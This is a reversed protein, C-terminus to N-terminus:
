PGGSKPKMMQNMVEPTMMKDMMQDFANLSQGMLMPNAMGLNMMMMPNM